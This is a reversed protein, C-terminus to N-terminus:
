EKIPSSQTLVNAAIRATRHALDSISLERFQSVATALTDELPGTWREPLAAGGLIVGLLAGVNACNCDTDMGCEAAIGLAQTLDNKGYLLALLCWITNNITHAPHYAGYKLLLRDYAVEWDEVERSVALTDQVAEALRCSRPIESLGVGIIEAIDESVFAWAIMAAWFMAGYVGNKTHSLTVDKYALAAALEPRGPAAFGYLDARIRGGIFERVPNLYSAAEEPPISCILNRYAVREATYTRFYTLHTMWETAVQATTFAVGYSELLHLALFTYDTDDDHPAGHIEGLFAGDPEPNLDFEALLPMIRPIYNTLPYAHALKLYRIVKNKPWGAEIPKGLVCGAVRALWGGYIRDYLEAPTIVLAAARPGEPRADHIAVLSGPECYPYDVRVPTELLQQCLKVLRPKPLAHLAEKELRLGTVDYGEEERQQQELQLALLLEDKSVYELFFLQRMSKRNSRQTPHPNVEDTRRRALSQAAPDPQYSLEEVVQLIREKTTQAIRGKGALAQSVTPVSVGAKQAIDELTIKEKPSMKAVKIKQYLIIFRKVLYIIASNVRNTL